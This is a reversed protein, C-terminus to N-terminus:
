QGGSDNEELAKNREIRLVRQNLINAYNRAYTIGYDAYAKNALDYAEQVNGNIENYVAMNFTARGAIKRKPSDLDKKWYEAAGDWDGILAKRKAIKLNRSGKNYFERSVRFVVYEVRNAYMRGVNKSVQKVQEKRNVLTAAAKIPNIGRGTNTIWDSVYFQDLVTKTGPDYIRWGTKLNTRSTATHEIVPISGGLPNNVQKTQQSYSLKTDTDYMELVFLVQVDGDICLQEVVAWDLQAPFVGMGPTQLQLEDMLKVQEFRPNRTLEDFCSKVADTSGIYDLEPGELTLGAEIKDLIGAKGQTLTRNIVGASKYEQPLFVAPPEQVNMRVNTKCGVLILIFFSLAFLPKM